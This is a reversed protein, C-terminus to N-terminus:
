STGAPSRSTRRRSSSPTHSSFYDTTSPPVSCTKGANEELVEVRDQLRENEDLLHGVMSRLEGADFEEVPQGYFTVGELRDDDYLDAIESM